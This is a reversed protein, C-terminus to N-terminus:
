TGVRICISHWTKLIQLSKARYEADLRFEDVLDSILKHTVNIFYLRNWGELGVALMKKAFEFEVSKSHKASLPISVIPPRLQCNEVLNNINEFKEQDILYRFLCTSAETGRIFHGASVMEYDLSYLFAVMLSIFKYASESSEESQHIPSLSFPDTPIRFVANKLISHLQTEGKRKRKESVDCHREQHEYKPWIHGLLSRVFEIFHPPGQCIWLEDTPRFTVAIYNPPFPSFNRNISGM